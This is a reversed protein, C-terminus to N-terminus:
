IVVNSIDKELLESVFWSLTNNQISRTQCRSIYKSSMRPRIKVQKGTLQCQQTIGRLYVTYEFYQAVAFSCLHESFNRQRTFKCSTLVQFQPCSNLQAINLYSRQSTYCAHATYNQPAASDEQWIVNVSGGLM